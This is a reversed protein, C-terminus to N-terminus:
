SLLIKGNQQHFVHETLPPSPVFLLSLKQLKRRSKPAPVSASPLRAFCSDPQRSQIQTQPPIIQMTVGTWYNRLSIITPHPVQSPDHGFHRSFSPILKACMALAPFALAELSHIDVKINPIQLFWILLAFANCM